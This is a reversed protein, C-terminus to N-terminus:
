AEAQHNLTQIRAIQKQWLGKLHNQKEKGTRINLTLEASYKIIGEMLKMRDTLSMKRLEETNYIKLDAM